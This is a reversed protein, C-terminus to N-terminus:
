ALRPSGQVANTELRQRLTVVRTATEPQTVGGDILTLSGYCRASVKHLGPRREQAIYISINRPAISKYEKRLVWFFKLYGSIAVIAFAAFLLNM